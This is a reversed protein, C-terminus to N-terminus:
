LTVFFKTIDVGQDKRTGNIPAVTLHLPHGLVGVQILRDHNDRYELTVMEGQSLRIRYTGADPDDIVQLIGTDLITEM